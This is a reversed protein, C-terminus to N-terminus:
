FSQATYFQAGPFTRFSRIDKLSDPEGPVTISNKLLSQEAPYGFFRFKYSLRGERENPVSPRKESFIGCKCVGIRTQLIRAPDGCCEMQSLEYFVITDM